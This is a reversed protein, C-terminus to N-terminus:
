FLEKAKKRKRCPPTPERTQPTPQAPTPPSSLKTNEPPLDERRTRNVPFPEALPDRPMSVLPQTPVWPERPLNRIAFQLEERLDDIAIRLVEVQESLTRVEGALGEM